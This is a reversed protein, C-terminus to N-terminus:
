RQKRRKGEYPRGCSACKGHERRPGHGEAYVPTTSSDYDDASMSVRADCLSAGCECLFAAKSDARFRHNSM